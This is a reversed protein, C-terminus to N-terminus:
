NVEFLWFNAMGIEGRDDSRQENKEEAFKFVWLVGIEDLWQFFVQPEFDGGLFTPVDTLFLLPTVDSVENILEHLGRDIQSFTVTDKIHLRAAYSDVLQTLPNQEM